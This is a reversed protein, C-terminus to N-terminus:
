CVQSIFQVHHYWQQLNGSKTSLKIMCHITIFYLSTSERYTRQALLTNVNVICGLMNCMNNSETAKEEQTQKYM